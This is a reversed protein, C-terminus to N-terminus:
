DLGFFGEANRFTIEALEEVAMARLTAVAGAVLAVKGPENRKGREPVPALYPCDTEVLLGDLPAAKVAERTATAGAYTVNGAVSVLCGLDLARRMEDVDGSFCHLVARVRGQWSSLRELVEAMAARSHVIAPKGAREALALHREFAERQLARPSLDRYFDLGTEGVAVIRPLALMEGLRSWDGETASEVYHPHIGVACYVGETAAAAATVRESSEPDAAVDIVLRVGASRARQLVAERDADFRTDSLHAHTDALRM